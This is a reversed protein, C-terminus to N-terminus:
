FIYTARSNNAEYSHILRDNRLDYFLIFKSYGNIDEDEESKSQDKRILDFVLTIVIIDNDLVKYETQDFHFRLSNSSHHNYKVGNMINLVTKTFDIKYLENGKCDCCNLIIFKSKELAQYIFAINSYSEEVFGFFNCNNIVKIPKTSEKDIVIFTNRYVSFLLFDPAYNFSHKPKLDVFLLGLNWKKTLNNVSFIEYDCINSDSNIVTDIYHQIKKTSVVTRGNHNNDVICVEEEYINNKRYCSCIILDEDYQVERLLFCFRIKNYKKFEEVVKYKKNLFNIVSRSDTYANKSIIDYTISSLQKLYLSGVLDIMITNVRCFGKEFSNVEITLLDKNSIFSISGVSGDTIVNDYLRVLNDSIISGIASIKNSKVCYLIDSDSNYNLYNLVVNYLHHKNYAIGFYDTLSFCPKLDVADLHDDLLLKYLYIPSEGVKSSVNDINYNTRELSVACILVNEKSTAYVKLIDLRHDPVSHEIIEEIIKKNKLFISKGHSENVRIIEIGSKSSISYSFLYESLININCYNADDFHILHYYQDFVHITQYEKILIRDKSLQKM